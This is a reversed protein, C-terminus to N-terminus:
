EPLTSPTAMPLPTNTMIATARPTLPATLEEGLSPWRAWAIVGLIIALVLMVIIRKWGSGIIGAQSRAPSLGLVVATLNDKAGKGLAVQGLKAAASEVPADKLVESIEGAGLVDSLGDSCLLLRDNPRLRYGQNREAQATQGGSNTILRLDIEVPNRSGLYHHFARPHLAKRGRRSHEDEDRVLEHDITLQRLRGERLLYLRSNGVCATYLREGIVWACLCTSGMGQKKPDLESQVLITQSASLIAAQLIPSPQTANSQAVFDTVADVALQAAVEGAHHEGVGDALVMLLSPIPDDLGHQFASVRYRDENKKGALGTDSHASVQLHAEDKPIM